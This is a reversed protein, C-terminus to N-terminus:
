VHFTNNDDFASTQRWGLFCITQSVEDVTVDLTNRHGSFNGLLSGNADSGFVSISGSVNEKEPDSDNTVLATSIGAPSADVRRVNSINKHWIVTQAAPDLKYFGDGWAAIYLNDADDTSIDLVQEALRTVSLLQKGSPDFRLVLGASSATGSGIIRESAGAPVSYNPVNAVVVLSGNSQIVM